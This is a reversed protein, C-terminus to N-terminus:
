PRSGSRRRPRSYGRRSPIYMDPGEQRQMRITHDQCSQCRRILHVDDRNIWRRRVHKPGYVPHKVIEFEKAPDNPDNFRVGAAVERTGPHYLTAGPCEILVKDTDEAFENISATLHNYFAGKTDNCHVCIDLGGITELERGCHPCTQKHEPM